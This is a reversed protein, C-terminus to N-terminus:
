FDSCKGDVAWDGYRTPELQAVECDESKQSFADFRLRREAAELLAQKAQPTLRQGRAALLDKKSIRARRTTKGNTLIIM